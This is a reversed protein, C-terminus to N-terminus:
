YLLARLAAVLALPQALPVHHGAEPIALPGHGHALHQMIKEPRGGRMLPSREGYLYTIPTQVRRLLAGGDADGRAHVLSDAFKWRFGGEVTELSHHAVYDRAYPLVTADEPTLRYRAKARAVSPYVRRPGIPMPSRRVDEDAFRVYSDVLLTRAVLEPREACLRLARSGGFSHGVLTAPAIRADAIVEAIELAFSLSDCVGRAASDGMGSFDLAFVRFHGTFYPAIFSWWRAHARMGHLFLLGPKAAEEANWSLYHLVVGSGAVFHSRTPRAIADRFWAPAGEDRWAELEITSAPRALGDDEPNSM